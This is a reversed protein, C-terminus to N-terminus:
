NGSPIKVGEVSPGAGGFSPTHEAGVQRMATAENIHSPLAGVEVPGNPTNQAM